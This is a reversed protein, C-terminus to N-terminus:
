FETVDLFIKSSRNLNMTSSGVVATPRTEHSRAVVLRGSLSFTIKLQLNVKAFM